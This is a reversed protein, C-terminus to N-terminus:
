PELVVWGGHEDRAFHLVPYDRKRLESSRGNISIVVLREWNIPIRDTDIAFQDVDRERIILRNREANFSGTAWAGETGDRAREVFLWRDADHFEAPIEVREPPPPVDPQHTSTPDHGNTESPM